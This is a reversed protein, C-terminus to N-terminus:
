GSSAFCRKPSSAVLTQGTSLSDYRNRKSRASAPICRTRGSGFNSIHCYETEPRKEGKGARLDGGWGRQRREEGWYEGAVCSMGGLAACICRLLAGAFTETCLLTGRLKNYGTVDYKSLATSLPERAFVTIQPPVMCNESCGLAIDCIVFVRLPM